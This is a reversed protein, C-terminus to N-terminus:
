WEMVIKGDWWIGHNWGKDVDAVLTEEGQGSRCTPGVANRYAQHAGLFFPAKLLALRVSRSLAPKFLPPKQQVKQQVLFFARNQPNLM